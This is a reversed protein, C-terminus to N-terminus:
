LFNGFIQRGQFLNETACCVFLGLCLCHCLKSLLKVVCVEEDRENGVKLPNVKFHTCINSERM